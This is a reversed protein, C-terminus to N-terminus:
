RGRADCNHKPTTHPSLVFTPGQLLSGALLKTLGPFEMVSGLSNRINTALQTSSAIACRQSFNHVRVVLPFSLEVPILAPKIFGFLVLPIGTIKLSVGSIMAKRGSDYGTILLNNKKHGYPLHADLKQM